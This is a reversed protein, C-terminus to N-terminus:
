KMAERTGESIKFKQCLQDVYIDFQYHGWDELQKMTAPQKVNWAIFLGIVIGLLIRM